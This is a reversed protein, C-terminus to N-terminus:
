IIGEIVGKLSNVSYSLEDQARLDAPLFTLSKSDRANSVDM